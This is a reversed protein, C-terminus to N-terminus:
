PCIHGCSGASQCALGLTAEFGRVTGEAATDHTATEFAEVQLEEINLALKQM